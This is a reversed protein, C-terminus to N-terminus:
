AYISIEANNAVAAYLEDIERNTVAICGATWNRLLHFKGIYGYGNRLGHIKIDGGPSKGSGIAFAINKTNPYSIGLNKHFRSKPNRDDIKYVGEPTKNDGEFHKAGIPNKGLSILYTKLLQDNSFVHMRRKSKWVEIRDIELGQQLKKQTIFNWFWKM